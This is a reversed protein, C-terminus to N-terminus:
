VHGLLLQQPPAPHIQEQKLKLRLFDAKTSFASSSIYMSIVKGPSSLMPSAELDSLFADAQFYFVPQCM